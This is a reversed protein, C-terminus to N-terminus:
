PERKPVAEGRHCTYCTIGDVGQPLKSDVDKVILIMSRAINKNPNEDSAFNGQVHCFACTVGLGERFSTMTKHIDVDAPLVQLNKPSPIAGGPSSQAYLEICLLLSLLAISIRM